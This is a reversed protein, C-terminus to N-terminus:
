SAPVTPCVTDCLTTRTRSEAVVEGEPKVHQDTLKFGDGANLVRPNPSVVTPYRELDVYTARAPEVSSISHYSLRDHM